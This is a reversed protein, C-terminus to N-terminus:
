SNGNVLYIAEWGVLKMDLDVSDEFRLSVARGAGRIKNKTTLMPYGSSQVDSPLNPIYERVHRYVQQPTGWKGAVADGTWDWQTSLMISSGNLAVFDQSYGTETKVSHVTIYLLQKKKDSTGVLNYGTTFYARYTHGVSDKSWWDRFKAPASRTTAVVMDGFTYNFTTSTTPNCVVFKLARNTAQPYITYAGVTNGLVDVVEAGGDVVTVLTDTTATGTTLFAGIIYPTTSNVTPAVVSMTYFCKLRVDLVLAHTKLYRDTVGDQLPNGNYLWYIRKEEDHFVATAYLKATATITQILTKITLDTLPTAEVTLSSESQAVVYVGAAALFFVVGEAVIISSKHIAAVNSIRQVTYSTATFGSEAASVLWVGNDAFVVLSNYMPLIHLIAGAGQLPITGGDTDVIDYVTESTPDAEQYCKDFKSDDLSSQSFLLWNGVINGGVGAFWARGAWFATTSPRSYTTLTDVRVQEFVELINRGRPAPSTGFEVKDLVTADFDDTTNKGQTWQQANSPYLGTSVQYADRKADQWGQNALNYAHQASLAVPRNDVAVGEDIGLLDRIKLTIPTATITNAVEDYSVVVPDIYKHVVLLKGNASACCVETYPIEAQRSAVINGIPLASLDLTFPRKTGSLLLGYNNFFHLVSGIQVVIFNRLGNGAVTNWEYTTHAVAHKTATDLATPLINVYSTEFDVATRKHLQGTIQPVVNDGERWTNEPYTLFGAETNLGAVFTFQQQVAVQQGM